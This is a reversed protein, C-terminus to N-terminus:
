ATRIEIKEADELSCVVEYITKLLEDNEDMKNKFTLVEMFSRNRQVQIIIEPKEEGQEDPLAIFGVLYERDNYTAYLYWGWDEADIETVNAGKKILLPSLWEGVSIGHIPNIPNPKENGIDFQGSEFTIIYHM